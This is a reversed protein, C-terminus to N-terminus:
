SSTPAKKKDLSFLVEITLFLAFLLISFFPHTIGNLRFILVMVVFLGLLLGHIRNKFLYTTLFFLFCFLLFLFIPILSIPFTSTDPPFAYVLVSELCLSVLSGLLLLVPRKKKRSSTSIMQM